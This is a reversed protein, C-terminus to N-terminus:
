VYYHINTLRNFFLFPSSIDLDEGIKKTVVQASATVERQNLCNM